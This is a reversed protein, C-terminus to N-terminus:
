RKRTAVAKTPPQWKMRAMVRLVASEPISLTRYSRKANGLLKGTGKLRLVDPEFLFLTRITKASYGLRKAVQQVTYHEQKPEM